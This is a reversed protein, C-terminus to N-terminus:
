RLETWEASAYQATLAEEEDPEFAPWGPHAIDVALVDGLQQAFTEELLEWPLGRASPRWISGQLLVGRKNRKLAAGAVKRGDDLRVIDDLEPREFCVGPPTRPPERQLVVGDGLANLAAALAEHIARYIVRGPREVLAHTRPLVIAYTWDNRHDVLGGGTPRRALDLEHPEDKPLHDRVFAIKQAYGFTFAPRRWGCHRFRVSEERTYRQLLLFDVAMNGAADSDRTPLFDLNM